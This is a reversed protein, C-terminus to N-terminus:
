NHEARHGGRQSNEAIKTDGEGENYNFDNGEQHQCNSDVVDKNYYLCILHAGTKWYETMKLKTPFTKTKQLFLDINISRLFHNTDTDRMLPVFAEGLLYEVFLNATNKSVYGWAYEEGGERLCHSEEQTVYIM